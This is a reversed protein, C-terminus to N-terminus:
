RFELAAVVMLAGVLSMHEMVLRKTALAQEGTMNWFDLAIPITLLTFVGLILAGLWIYYGSIILASGGLLFIIVAVAVPGAPTLNFHKMEAVTGKFDFLKILGSLWFVCTLVVRAAVGYAANSMVVAQITL